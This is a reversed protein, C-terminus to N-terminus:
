PSVGAAALYVPSTKCVLGRRTNERQTTVELHAPNVCRRNRCLHDMVLGDPVVGGGLIWSVRHAVTFRIDLGTHRTAVLFVGYGCQNKAGLWPWCAGDGGSRDVKSWFRDELSM